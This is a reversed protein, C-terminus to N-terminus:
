RCSAAVSSPCAFVRAIRAGSLAASPYGGLGILLDGTQLNQSNFNTWEALPGPGDDGWISM